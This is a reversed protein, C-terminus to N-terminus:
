GYIEAYRCFHRRCSHSQLWRSKFYNRTGFIVTSNSLNFHFHKILKLPEGLETLVLILVSLMWCIKWLIQMVKMIKYIYIFFRNMITALQKKNSSLNGKEKLLRKKSNLGKNTFYPKITKWFKRNDSLVTHKFEPFLRKKTKHLM